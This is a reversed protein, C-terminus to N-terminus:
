ATRSGPHGIGTEIILKGGGPMADRSNVCLNLVASELQTLDVLATCNERSQIVELEIDASLTRRLISEMNALMRNVDVPKPQLTQRRAFALMRHTLDAGRQAAKWIM